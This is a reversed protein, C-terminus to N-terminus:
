KRLEEIEKAVLFHPFELDFNLREALDLLRDRLDPRDRAVLVLILSKDEPESALDELDEWPVSEPKRLVEAAAWDDDSGQELLTM